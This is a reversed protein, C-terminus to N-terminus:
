GWPNPLVVVPPNQIYALQAALDTEIATVQDQGLTDFVWQIVQAQTLQDYPVFSAQPPTFIVTGSTRVIDSDDNCLWNASIVVDTLGDLQKQTEMSIISWNM